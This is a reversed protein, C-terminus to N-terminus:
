KPRAASSTRTAMDLAALLLGDQTDRAIERDEIKRDDDTDHRIRM